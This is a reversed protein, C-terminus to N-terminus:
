IGFINSPNSKPPLPCLVLRHFLTFVGTSISQLPSWYFIVPFQEPYHFILVEFLEVVGTDRGLRRLVARSEVSRPPLSPPRLLVRYQGKSNSEKELSFPGKRVISHKRSFWLCFCDYGSMCKTRIYERLISIVSIKEVENSLRWPCLLGKHTPGLYRHIFVYHTIHVYM